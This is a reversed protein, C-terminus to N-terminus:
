DIWFWKTRIWHSEVSGAQPGLTVVISQAKAERKVDADSYFAVVHDRSKMQQVLQIIENEEMM